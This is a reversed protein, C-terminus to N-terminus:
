LGSVPCSIISGLRAHSKRLAKRKLDDFQVFLIVEPRAGTAMVVVVPIIIVSKVTVTGARIM